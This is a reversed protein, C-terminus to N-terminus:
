HHAFRAGRHHYYDWLGEAFHDPHTQIALSLNQALQSVTGTFIEHAGTQIDSNNGFRQTVDLFERGLEYTTDFVSYLAKRASRKQWFGADFAGAYDRLMFRRVGTLVVGHGSEGWQLGALVSHEFPIVFSPSKCIDYKRTRSVTSARKEANLRITDFFHSPTHPISAIVM